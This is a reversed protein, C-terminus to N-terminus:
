KYLVPSSGSFTKANIFCDPPSNKAFLPSTPVTANAVTVSGNTHLAFGYCVALGTVRVLFAGM